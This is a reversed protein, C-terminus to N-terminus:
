SSRTLSVGDGDRLRWAEGGPGNFQRDKRGARLFDRLAEYVSATMPPGAGRLAEVLYPFTADPEALLRRRGAAPALREARAQLEARLQAAADGLACLLPVPDAGFHEGLAPLLLTRVRTRSHATCRNSTDQVAGLGAAEARLEFRRLGLAPRIRLVGGISVAAMPAALGRLGSGRLLNFLITEARDDASHATALCACGHRRVLRHLAAYRARRAGAEGAPPTVRCRVLELGLSDAVTRVCRRERRSARPGRLRHDVYALLPNQARMRVALGCSDPGGSFALLVRDGV